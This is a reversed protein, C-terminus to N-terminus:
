WVNFRASTPCKTGSASARKAAVTRTTSSFFTTRATRRPHHVNPPRTRTAMRAALRTLARQGLVALLAGRLM